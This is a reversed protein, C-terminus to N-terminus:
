IKAIEDGIGDAPVNVLVVVIRGVRGGLDGNRHNGVANDPIGDDFAMCAFNRETVHEPGNRQSDAEIICAGHAIGEDGEINIRRFQFFGQFDYGANIWEFAAVIKQLEGPDPECIIRITHDEIPNRFDPQAIFLVPVCRQIIRFGIM